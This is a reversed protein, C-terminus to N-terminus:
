KIVEFYDELKAEKCISQTIRNAIIKSCHIKGSLINGLYLPSIGVKNEAIYKITKDELVKAKNVEKFFYKENKM